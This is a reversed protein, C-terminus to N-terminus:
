STIASADYETKPVFAIEDLNEKKEKAKRHLQLEHALHARIVVVEEYARESENHTRDLFYILQDLHAPTQYCTEEERDVVKQNNQHWSDLVM